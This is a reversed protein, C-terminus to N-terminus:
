REGDGDGVEGEEDEEVAEGNCGWFVANCSAYLATFFSPNFILAAHRRYPTGFVVNIHRRAFGTNWSFHGNPRAGRKM